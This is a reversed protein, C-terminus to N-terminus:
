TVRGVMPTLKYSGNGQHIVHLDLRVTTTSGARITFPGNLKLADSPVDVTVNSREGVGLLGAKLTGNASTVGIRIWSYNGAALGTRALESLNGGQLTVVDVSRVGASFERDNGDSGHVTFGSVHVTLSSFDAIDDPPDSGQVLLTGDGTTCGALALAAVVLGLAM